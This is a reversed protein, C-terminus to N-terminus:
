KGSRLSATMESSRTARAIASGISAGCNVKGAPSAELDRSVQARSVSVKSSRAKPRSLAIMETPPPTVEEPERRHEAEPMFHEPRVSM